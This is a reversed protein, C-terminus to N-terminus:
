AYYTFPNFDAKLVDCSTVNYNKERAQRFSCDQKLVLTTTLDLRITQNICQVTRYVKILARNFCVVFM